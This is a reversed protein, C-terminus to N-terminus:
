THPKFEHSTKAASVNFVIEAYSLPLDVVPQAEDATIGIEAMMLPQNDKAEAVWVACGLAHLLARAPRRLKRRNNARVLGGCCCCCCSKCHRRNAGRRRIAAFGLM